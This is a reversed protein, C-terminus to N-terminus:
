PIVMSAKGYGQYYRVSAVMGSTNGYIRGMGVTIVATVANGM